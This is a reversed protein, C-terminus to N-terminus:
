VKILDQSKGLSEYNGLITPRLDNPLEHPLESIGHKTSIIASPKLQPSFFIRYFM